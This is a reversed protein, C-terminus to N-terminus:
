YGVLAAKTEVRSREEAKKLKIPSSCFQPMLGGCFLVGPL